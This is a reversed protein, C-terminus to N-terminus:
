PAPRVEVDPAPVGRVEETAMSWWGGTLLGLAGGLVLWAATGPSSLLRVIAVITAAVGALITVISLAAPLAPSRRVAQAVLLALGPLALITLVVDFFPAAILLVAAAGALWEAPRVRVLSM